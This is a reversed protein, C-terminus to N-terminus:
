VSSVCNLMLLSSGVLFVSCWFMMKLRVLCRCGLLVCLGCVVEIVVSCCCKLMLM